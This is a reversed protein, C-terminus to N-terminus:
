KKGGIENFNSEGGGFYFDTFTVRKKKKKKNAKEKEDEPLDEQKPEEDPRDHIEIDQDSNNESDSGSSFNLFATVHQTNELRERVIKKIDAKKM